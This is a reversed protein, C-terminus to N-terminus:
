EFVSWRPNNVWPYDHEDSRRSSTRLAVGGNAVHRGLHLVDRKKIVIHLNVRRIKIVSNAKKLLVRIHDREGTNHQSIPIDRSVFRTSQELVVRGPHATGPQPISSRM